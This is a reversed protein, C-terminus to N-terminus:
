RALRLANGGWSLTCGGRVSVAVGTGASAGNRALSQYVVAIVAAAGRYSVGKSFEWRRGKDRSRGTFDGDHNTALYGNGKQTLFVHRFNFSTLKTSCTSSRPSFIYLGGWIGGFTTNKLPTVQNGSEYRAMRRAAQLARYKLTVDDAFADTGISVIVMVACFIPKIRMPCNEVLKPVHNVSLRGFLTAVELVHILAQCVISPAISQFAFSFGKDEGVAEEPVHCRGVRILTAEGRTGLSKLPVKMFSDHFTDSRLSPVM